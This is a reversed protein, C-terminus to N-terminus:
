GNAMVGQLARTVSGVAYQKTDQGEVQRDLTRVPWIDILSNTLFIEDAHILEDATVRRIQVPFGLRRAAELVLSRMVGEVGCQTLEPTVLESNRVLFVNSMTGEIVDGEENRMLGEAFEDHWEARALVQELRNLHKLGALLPNRALRARCLRVAVGDRAWESPRERWPLLSVLRNPPVSDDAAYGQGGSGRTLIIRLVAQSAGACVRRAEDEITPPVPIALRLAGHQLRSWHRDWHRPEGTRVAITEFLGDGYRLGRDDIGVVDREAGNVLVRYM